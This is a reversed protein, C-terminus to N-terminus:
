PNVILFDGMVLYLVLVVFVVAPLLTSFSNKNEDLM